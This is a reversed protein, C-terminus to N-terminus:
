KAGKKRHIALSVVWGSRSRRSRRQTHERRCVDNYRGKEVEKAGGASASRENQNGTHAGVHRGVM